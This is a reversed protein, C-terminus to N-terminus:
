RQRFLPRGSDTNNPTDIPGHESLDPVDWEVTSDEVGARRLLETERILDLFWTPREEIPELSQASPPTDRCGGYEFSVEIGLEEICRSLTLQKERSIDCDIFM